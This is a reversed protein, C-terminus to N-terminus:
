KFLAIVEPGALRKEAAAFWKKAEAKEGVFWLQYGLLFQLTPEDPNAATVRRLEALQVAFLGVNVGYPEKTDFLRDPWTPDLALGARVATVADAYSGAAFAAQAKLFYPTAAKPNAVAARDFQEVAKGYEGRAFAERGLKVLRLAEKVPDADPLDKEFRRPEAFPDLRPPPLLPLRDLKAVRDVEPVIQGPPPLAPKKPEFVLFDAAKVPAPRPPDDPRIFVMGAANREPLDNNGAIIIPPAVVIVPPQPATYFGWNPGGFGPEWGPGFGFPPIPAIGPFLPAPPFGFVSRSYGGAFGFARFNHKHYSFGAGRGYVVGGGYVPGVVVQAWVPSPHSLWVAVVVALITRKM